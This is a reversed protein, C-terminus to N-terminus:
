QVSSASQLADAWTVWTKPVWLITIVRILECGGVRLYTWRRLSSPLDFFSIM